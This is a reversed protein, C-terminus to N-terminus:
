ILELQSLIKFIGDKKGGDCVYDAIQLLKESGYKDKVGIGIMANELMEIDNEQDGFAIYNPSLHFIKLMKLIGTYKNVNNQMLDVHTSPGEVVQIDHKKSFARWDFDDHYYANLILVDENEYAKVPEIEAKFYQYAEKQHDTIFPTTFTKEITRVSLAMELKKADAIINKVTEKPIADAFLLEKKNTYGCAGNNCIIGDFLSLDLGPYDIIHISRGTALFVKFNNEKLKKIADLTSQPLYELETDRITGDFDFFVSEIKKM